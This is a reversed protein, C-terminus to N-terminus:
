AQLLTYTASEMTCIGGVLPYGCYRAILSSGSSIWDNLQSDESNGSLSMIQQKAQAVTILAM